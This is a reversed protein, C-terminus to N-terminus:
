SLHIGREDLRNVRAGLQILAEVCKDHGNAAANVLTNQTIRRPREPLTFDNAVCETCVSEM